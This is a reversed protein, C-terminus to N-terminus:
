NLSLLLANLVMTCFASFFVGFYFAVLSNESIIQTRQPSNNCLVLFHKANYLFFIGDWEKCYSLIKRSIRLFKNCLKEFDDVAMQYQVTIAPETYLQGRREVLIPSFSTQTTGSTLRTKTKGTTKSSIPRSCM